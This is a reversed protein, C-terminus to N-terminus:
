NDGPYTVDVDAEDVGLSAALISAFLPKPVLCDACADPGAVVVAKVAQGEQSVALEYGDAELSARLGGVASEDM